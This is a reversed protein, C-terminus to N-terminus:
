QTLMLTELGDGHSSPARPLARWPPSSGEEPTRSALHAKRKVEKQLDWRRGRQLPSNGGGGVNGFALVCPSPWFATPTSALELPSAPPLPHGPTRSGQEQTQHAPAETIRGAVGLHKRMLSRNCKEIHGRPTLSPDPKSLQQLVSLAKGWVHSPALALQELLGLVVLPAISGLHPPAQPAAHPPSSTLPVSCVGNANPCASWPPCACRRPAMVICARLTAKVTEGAEAEDGKEAEWDLRSSPRLVVAPAGGAKAAVAVIPGALPDGARCNGCLAQPM